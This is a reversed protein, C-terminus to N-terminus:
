ECDHQCVTSRCSILNVGVRRIITSGIGGWESRPSHTRRHAYFYIDRKNNYVWHNFIYIVLCSRGQGILRPRGPAIYQRSSFHLSHCGLDMDLDKRSLSSSIQLKAVALRTKRPCVCFGSIAFNVDVTMPALSPKLPQSAFYRAASGPESDESVPTDPDSILESDYDVFTHRISLWTPKFESHIM